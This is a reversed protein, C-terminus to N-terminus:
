VPFWRGSRTSGGAGDFQYVNVTYMGPMQGDYMRVSGAIKGGVGLVVNVNPVPAGVVPIDSAAALTTQDGYYEFAYVGAPDLFRLRYLGTELPGTTYVGSSNSYVSRVEGWNGGSLQQYIRVEINGLVAGDQNRVTGSIDSIVTEQQVYMRCMRTGRDPTLVGAALWVSYGARWLVGVSKPTLKGLLM